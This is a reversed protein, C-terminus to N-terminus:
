AGRRDVFQNIIGWVIARGVGSPDLSPQYSKISLVRTFPLVIELQKYFVSLHMGNSPPHISCPFDEARIVDTDIHLHLPVTSTWGHPLEHYDKVCLARMRTTEGEELDCGGVFTAEIPVPIGLTKVLSQDGIGMLIAFPMGGVSGSMTSLFTHFDGHADFWVIGMGERQAALASLCDGAVLIDPQLDRIRQIRRALVKEEVVSWSEDRDPLIDWRQGFHHPSIVKAVDKERQHM